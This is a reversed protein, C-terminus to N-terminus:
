AAAAGEQSDLDVNWEHALSLTVRAAYLFLEWPAHGISRAALAEAKARMAQITALMERGAACRRLVAAPDNLAIHEGYNGTGVQAVAPRSQGVVTVSGNSTGNMYLSVIRYDWEDGGAAQAIQEVRDIAAAIQVEVDRTPIKM